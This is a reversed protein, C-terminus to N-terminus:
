FRDAYRWRRSYRRRKQEAPMLIGVVILIKCWWPSQWFLMLMTNATGIIIMWAFAFPDFDSMPNM